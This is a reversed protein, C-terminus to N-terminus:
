ENLNIKGNFSKSQKFISIGLLRWDYTGTIIYSFETNSTKQLSIHSQEWFRGFLLGSQYSEVTLPVTTQTRYEQKYSVSLYIKSLYTDQVVINEFKEAELSQTNTNLQIKNTKQNNQVNRGLFNLSLFVFIIAVFANVRRYILRTYHYFLYIAAILAVTNIIIWIYFIVANM